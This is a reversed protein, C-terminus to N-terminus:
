ATTTSSEPLYGLAELINSVPKDKVIAPLDVVMMGDQGKVQPKEGTVVVENLQRSGISDTNESQASLHNFASLAIFIIFIRKM